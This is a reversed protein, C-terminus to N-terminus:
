RLAVKLETSRTLDSCTLAQLFSRRRWFRAPQSMCLGATVDLDADTLGPGSNWPCIDLACPLFPVYSSIVWFISIAMNLTKKVNADKKDVKIKITWWNELAVGHLGQSM